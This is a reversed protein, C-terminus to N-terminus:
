LKCLATFISFKWQKNQKVREGMLMNHFIAMKVSFGGRVLEFQYSVIFFAEISILSPVYTSQVM